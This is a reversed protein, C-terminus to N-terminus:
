GAQERKDASYARLMLVATVLVAIMILCMSVEIMAPPIVLGMHEAINDLDTMLNMLGMCVFISRVFPALAKNSREIRAADPRDRWNAVGIWRQFRELTPTNIIAAFFFMFFAASLRFVDRPWQIHWIHSAASAGLCLFLPAVLVGMLLLAKVINKRFYM